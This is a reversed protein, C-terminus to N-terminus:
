YDGSRKGEKYKHPRPKPVLSYYYLVRTSVESVCKCVPFTLMCSIDMSRSIVVQPTRIDADASDMLVPVMCTSACACACARNLM